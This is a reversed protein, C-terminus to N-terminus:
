PNMILVLKKLEKFLYKNYFFYFFTGKKDILGTEM